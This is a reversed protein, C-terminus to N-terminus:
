LDRSKKGWVLIIPFAKQPWLWTLLPPLPQGSGDWCGRRLTAWGGGSLPQGPPTRTGQQAWVGPAGGRVGVGADTLGLAGGTLGAPSAKARQPGAGVAQVAAVWQRHGEAAVWKGLAGVCPGQPWVEGSGCLEPMGLQTGRQVQQEWQWLCIAWSTQATHTRGGSSHEGQVGEALVRGGVSGQFM